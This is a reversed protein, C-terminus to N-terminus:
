SQELPLLPAASDSSPWSPPLFSADLPVCAHVELAPFARAAAPDDLLHPRPDSSPASNSYTNMPTAVAFATQSHVRISFSKTELGSGTTNSRLRGHWRSASEKTLIWILPRRM